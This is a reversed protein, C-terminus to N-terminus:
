VTCLAVAEQLSQYPDRTPIYEHGVFGDYGIEVLTEILPRFNIEQKEDLECRGPNGATHIHGLVDKHQHLRRILDGDMIQTHYFDLLLKLNPSDVRRVIDACYDVHDGQYGPHGKMPHTDDRTNLPELVLDVGKEEAYTAMERMGRVCNESGEELSITGSNPDDPNRYKYGTFAIVNRCGYKAALDIGERTKEFVRPWNDPNNYGHTFPPNPSMDLGLLACTLGFGTVVKLQEENDLLEISECGLEKAVECVKELSWKDGAVNFCWFAISQKLKSKTIHSEAM